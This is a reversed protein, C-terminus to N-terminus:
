IHRELERSRHFRRGKSVRHFSSSYILATASNNWNLVNDDRETPIYDTSCLTLRRACFFWVVLMVSLLHSKSRLIYAPRGAPRYILACYELLTRNSRQNWQLVFTLKELTSIQWCYQKWVPPLHQSSLPYTRPKLETEEERGGLM